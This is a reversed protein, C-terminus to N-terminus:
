GRRAADGDGSASDGDHEFVIHRPAVGSAPPEARPALGDLWAAASADHGRGRRKGTGLGFAPRPDRATGRGPPEGTGLRVAPRPDRETGRGPPAARPGNESSSLDATTNTGSVTGFNFAAGAPAPTAFSSYM